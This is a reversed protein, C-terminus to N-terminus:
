VHAVTLCFVLANLAFGLAFLGHVRAHQVFSLMGTALVYMLVCEVMAAENQISKLSLVLMLFGFAIQMFFLLHPGTEVAILHFHNLDNNDDFGLGPTTYFLALMVAPVFVSVGLCVGMLTSEVGRSPRGDEFAYAGVIVILCVVWLIELCAQATHQKAQLIRSNIAFVILFLLALADFVVASVFCLVSSELWLQTYNSFGFGFLILALVFSYHVGKSFGVDYHILGILSVFM